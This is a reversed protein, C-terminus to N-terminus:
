SIHAHPYDETANQLKSQVIIIFTVVAEPMLNTKM